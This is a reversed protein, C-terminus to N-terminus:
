FRSLTFTFTKKQKIPVTFSSTGGDIRENDDDNGNWSINNLYQNMLVTFTFTKKWKM